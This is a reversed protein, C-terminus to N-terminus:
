GDNEACLIVSRRYKQVQVYDKQNHGWPISKVLKEVLEM